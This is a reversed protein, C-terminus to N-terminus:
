VKISKVVVRNGKVEIVRIRANKQIMEGTTIVDVRKGGINAIGSPHLTTVTTGEASLLKDLDGKASKFGVESASISFKTSIVKFWLFVLLPFSILTIILLVHGLVHSELRYAWIVSVIVCGVGCIGIIMGPIFMEVVIVILGSAYLAIIFLKTM